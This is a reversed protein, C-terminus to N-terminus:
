AAWRKLQGAWRLLPNNACALLMVGRRTRELSNDPPM